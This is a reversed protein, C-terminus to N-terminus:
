GVVGDHNPFKNLLEGNTLIEQIQSINIKSSVSDTKLYLAVLYSLDVSGTQQTSLVSTLAASEFSSSGANYRKRNIM